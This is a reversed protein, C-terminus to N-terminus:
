MRGLRRRLRRALKSSWSGPEAPWDMERDWASQYVVGLYLQSLKREDIGKRLDSQLQWAYAYMKFFPQAPLLDIPKFRLLAEGYWHMEHPFQIILELFSQGRPQLYESDLSEWVRRDWVPCNPGFNYDKGTREMAVKVLNSERRFNDLVQDKGHTISDIFLDRGEDIITYPVGAATLFDTASFTRIFIADSDLCLYAQSLGLRWFESKVVQQAIGGPLAQLKRLNIKSNKSIIAEDEILIASTNRLFDQFLGIDNHPVSVYFPLKDLNFRDISHALRLARKLDGRYSKCYLAFPTPSTSNHSASLRSSENQM